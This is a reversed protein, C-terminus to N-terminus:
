EACPGLGVERCTQPCYYSLPEDDFTKLCRTDTNKKGVWECGKGKDDQFDPSDPGCDSSDEESSSEDGDQSDDSEACPGLGVESCTQPCYYSLPEDDFTKLCRTDTKKEGVWGCGNGKDDQFDPSDPGCDSSDEVRAEFSSATTEVVTLSESPSEIPSACPGIGVSGCTTPCYHSKPEGDFMELCRDVIKDQNGGRGVHGCNKGGEDQFDPSDPPCEVVTPSESPSEIPSTTTEVVTPSESTSEIPSACPGIGVSGCTTPCYHSKPEGDFM